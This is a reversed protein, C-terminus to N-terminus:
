DWGIFQLPKDLARLRHLSCPLTTKCKDCCFCNFHDSPPDLSVFTPSSAGCLCVLTEGAHGPEMVPHHEVGASQTTIDWCKGLSETVTSNAPSTCCRVGVARHAWSPPPKTTSTPKPEEVQKTIVKVCQAPSSSCCISKIKLCVVRKVSVKQIHLLEQLKALNGAVYIYIHVYIYQHPLPQNERKQRYQATSNEQTERTSNM